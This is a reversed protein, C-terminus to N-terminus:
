KVTYGRADLCASLARQYDGRKRLFQAETLGPPPRTPDFGTQDVAWRHCEYRDDALKKEDQGQRPYIFSKEGLIQGGPPATPPTDSSSPASSPPVPSVVGAPPSVIMYGGPVATYYVENAYYYPVGGVMIMTYFPPLFSIVLGIPPAVVLFRGGVPHYWVGDFFYYRARGFTVMRHGPPLARFYQGRPPYYHDHHYRSDKFQRHRFDREVARAEQSFVMGEMGWLLSVVLFTLSIRSLNSMIIEEM